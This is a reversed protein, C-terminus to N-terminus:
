SSENLAGAEASSVRWPTVPVFAVPPGSTGSEFKRCLESRTVGVAITVTILRIRPPAVEGLVPPRRPVFRTEVLTWGTPVSSLVDVWVVIRTRVFMAISTVTWSEPSECSAFM